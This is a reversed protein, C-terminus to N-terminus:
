TLGTLVGPYRPDGFGTAQIGFMNLFAAYLKNHPDGNNVVYRGPRLTGNGQGALVYPLDRRNHVQGASLENV